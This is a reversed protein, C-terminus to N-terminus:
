KMGYTKTKKRQQLERFLPETHIKEPGKCFGRSPLQGTLGTALALSNELAYSFGV